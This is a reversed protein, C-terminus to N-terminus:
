QRLWPVSHWTGTPSQWPLYCGNFTVFFLSCSHKSIYFLSAICLHSTVTSFSFIAMKRLHFHIIYSFTHFNKLLARIYRCLEILVSPFISIDIKVNYWFPFFSENTNSHSQIHWHYYVVSNLQFVVVYNNLLWSYSKTRVSFDAHYAFNVIHSWFWWWSLTSRSVFHKVFM